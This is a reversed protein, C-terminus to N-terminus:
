CSGSTNRSSGPPIGMEFRAGKGPEGTERISIGSITLIERALFLGLGTNRGFGRLFIKEKENEPIGTGDDECVLVLGEPTYSTYFNIRRITDGYRVANEILNVFVKVLMADALIEIDSVRNDWEIDGINVLSRAKEIIDGASQWVPAEIGMQQYERTFLIQRGIASTIHIQKDLLEREATGLLHDRLLEQYGQLAMLQNQIDHRTISSLLNLKRNASRVIEETHKRESIDEIIGDVVRPAKDPFGPLNATISVWFVSGDKKCMQLERRVIYGSSNTEKYLDARDDPNAYFDKLSVGRLQEKSAFGFLRAFFTNTEIITGAKNYSSRFIGINLNEVLTRYKEESERLANEATIRETIDRILAVMGNMSGDKRYVLAASIETSFQSGDKRMIRYVAPICADGKLMKGIDNRVREHDEPVIWEFLSTGNVEEYSPAHLLSLVVPSSATIRGDNGIHVIGSPSAQFLSRHLDESQALAEEAIKRESIDDVHAIIAVVRGQKNKIASASLAGWVVTGDKRIYRKEAQYEDKKGTIVDKMVSIDSDIHAPHTVDHFTMKMLEEQGYGLLESFKKNVTRFYSDPGVLAIAVPSKEFIIRFKEENMLLAGTKGAPENYNNRVRGESDAQKRNGAAMSVMDAIGSYFMEDGDSRVLCADPGNGAGESLYVECSTGSILIFPIDRSKRVERFFSAIKEDPTIMDAIIIDISDLQLILRAEQESFASKIEITSNQGIYQYASAHSDPNVGVYLVNIL